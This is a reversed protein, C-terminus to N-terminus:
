INNENKIKMGKLTEIFYSQNEFSNQKRLIQFLEHDMYSLKLGFKLYM